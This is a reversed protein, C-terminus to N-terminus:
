KLYPTGWDALAQSSVSARFLTGARVSAQPALKQMNDAAGGIGSGGSTAFPVVLQGHWAAAEMFTDVISPERYWWVPFGIFVVEYASLDPPLAALPPRSASDKMEVSSRSDKKTWDLDAETYPVQPRIEFLDSGTVQALDKAVRATTGSASFYAVLSKKM